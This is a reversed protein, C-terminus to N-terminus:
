QEVSHFWKMPEFITIGTDEYYIKKMYKHTKLHPYNTHGALYWDEMKLLLIGALRPGEFVVQEPLLTTSVLFKGIDPDKTVKNKGKWPPIYNPLRLMHDVGEVHFDEIGQFEEEELDM